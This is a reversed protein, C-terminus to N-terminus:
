RMRRRGPASSAASRNASEVRLELGSLPQAGITHPGGIRPLVMPRAAAAVAPAQPGGGAGPSPTLAVATGTGLTLMAIIAGVVGRNM